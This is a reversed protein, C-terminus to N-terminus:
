AHCGLSFLMLRVNAYMGQVTIGAAVAIMM